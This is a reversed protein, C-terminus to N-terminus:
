ENSIPLILPFNYLPNSYIPIGNDLKLAITGAGNNDNKLFEVLKTMEEQTPEDFGKCFRKYIDLAETLSIIQTEKNVGDPINHDVSSSM